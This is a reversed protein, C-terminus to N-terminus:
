QGHRGGCFRALHSAQFALLPMDFSSAMFFYQSSMSASGFQSFWSARLFMGAPQFTPSLYTGDTPTRIATCPYRTTSKYSAVTDPARSQPSDLQVHRESYVGPGESPIGQPSCRNDRPARSKSCPLAM